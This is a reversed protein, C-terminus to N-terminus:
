RRQKERGPRPWAALGGEGLMGSVVEGLEGASVAIAGPAAGGPMLLHCGPPAVYVRDPRLPEGVEAHAAALPGARSLISPLRSRAQERVHITIAVSGPLDARLAGILEQLPRLSGASGGVM